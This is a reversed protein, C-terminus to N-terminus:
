EQAGVLVIRSNKKNEDLGDYALLLLDGVRYYYNYTYPWFLRGIPDGL